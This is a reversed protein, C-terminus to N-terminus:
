EEVNMEGSKRSAGEQTSGSVRSYVVGDWGREEPTVNM